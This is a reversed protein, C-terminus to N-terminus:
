AIKICMKKKKKFILTRGNRENMKFIVVYNKLPFSSCFLLFM